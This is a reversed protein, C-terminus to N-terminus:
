AGAANIDTEYGWSLTVAAGSNNFVYVADQTVFDKIVGGAILLGRQDSTTEWDGIRVANSTTHTGPDAENSIWFKVRRQDRDALRVPESPNNPIAMPGDTVLQRISHAKGGEEVIYVPVADTVKPLPAPRPAKGVTGDPIEYQGDDSEVGHYKHYDAPREFVGPPKHAHTEPNVVHPIGGPIDAEPVGFERSQLDGSERFVEKLRAGGQPQRPGTDGEVIVNPGPRGRRPRRSAM